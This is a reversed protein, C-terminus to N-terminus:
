IGHCVSIIREADGIEEIEGENKEIKTDTLLRLIVIYHREVREGFGAGRKLLDRTWSCSM